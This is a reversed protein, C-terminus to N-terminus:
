QFLSRYFGFASLTGLVRAAPGFPSLMYLLWTLHSGVIGAASGAAVFARTRGTQVALIRAFGLFAFFEFFPYFEVRYRLTMGAASLILLVPVFLGTGALLAIDRGRARWNRWVAVVGVVALGLLLPDSVFFSAPPLEVSGITREQFAAWWLQGASDRLSWLPLFYYNLAYLIRVLNFQGYREIAPFQEPYRAAILGSPLDAFVAPNGWREFNVGGTAVVFMAVILASVVLGRTAVPEHRRLLGWALRLWILGLGVYPGLATSVRALLCLGAATALGALLRPSFCDRTLGRLVLFAFASAWVDAWLVVEQFISPRLFEIQPGSVLIAITLLSLLRPDRRDDAAQWMTLASLMKFLAMLTVATLCSLRTFDTTAFDPLWLFLVRFLAPFPGFYAITAGNHVFGEDGIAAADVDFRGQLMHQLMSNFTLGHMVPSFLGADRTLLFAYWLAAPLLWLLMTHGAAARRTAITSVDEAAM